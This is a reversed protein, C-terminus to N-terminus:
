LLFLTSGHFPMCGSYQKGSIVINDNGFPSFSSFSMSSTLQNSKSCHLNGRLWSIGMTLLYSVVLWLFRLSLTSRILLFLISLYSFNYLICTLIIMKVSRLFLRFSWYWTFKLTVKLVFVFFYFLFLFYYFYYYCQFGAYANFSDYFDKSVGM